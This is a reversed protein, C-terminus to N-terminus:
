SSGLMLSVPSGTSARGLQYPVPLARPRPRALVRQRLKIGKVAYGSTRPIVRGAGLIAALTARFEAPGPLPASEKAWRRYSKLADGGRLEAGTVTSAYLWAQVSDRTSRAVVGEGTSPLTTRDKNASTQAQAKSGAEAPNAPIPAQPRIGFFCSRLATGPQQAAGEIFLDALHFRAFLEQIRASANLVRVKRGYSELRKHLYVLARLGAADVGAAEAMDVTVDRVEQALKEIVPRAILAFAEDFAGTVKLDAAVM